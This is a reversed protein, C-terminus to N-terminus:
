LNNRSSNQGRDPVILMFCKSNTDNREVLGFVWVQSRKLDKGRNYKVRVYLSEDIEAIKGNGGLLLNNKDIGLSALQRFRYFISSTVEKATKSRGCCSCRWYMLTNKADKNRKQLWPSMDQDYKKCNLNLCKRVRNVLGYESLFFYIKYEPSNLINEKSDM